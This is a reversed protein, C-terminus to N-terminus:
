EDGNFIMSDLLHHSLHPGHINTIGIDTEVNPIAPFDVSLVNSCHYGLIYRNIQSALNFIVSNSRVPNYTTMWIEDKNNGSLELVYTNRM